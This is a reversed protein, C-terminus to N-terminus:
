SPSKTKKLEDRIYLLCLELQFRIEYAPMIVTKITDITKNDDPWCLVQDYTTLSLVAPFMINKDKKVSIDVCYISGANDNTKDIEGPVYQLKEIGDNKNAWFVIHKKKSIIQFLSSSPNNILQDINLDNDINWTYLWKWTGGDNYAISVGIKGKDIGFLNNITNVLSNSLEIIQLEPTIIDIFEDIRTNAAYNIYKDLKRRKSANIEGLLQKLLIQGRFKGVENKVDAMTKIITFVLTFLVFFVSIVIGHTELEGSVNNLIGWKKGFFQLLIFWQSSLTFFITSLVWKKTFFDYLSRSKSVNDKM